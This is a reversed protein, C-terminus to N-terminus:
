GLSSDKGIKGRGFDQVDRRGPTGTLDAIRMKWQVFEERRESLVRAGLFEQQLKQHGNGSQPPGPNVRGFFCRLM